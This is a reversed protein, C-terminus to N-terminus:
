LGYCNFFLAVFFSKVSSPIVVSKLGYCEYFAYDNIIKVSSPINISQLGYCKYFAYSNISTVSSPIVVDVSEKGNYKKVSLQRNYINRYYITNHNTNKSNTLYFVNGNNMEYGGYYSCILSYCNEFVSSGISTVSSPIVISQLGYCNSFM